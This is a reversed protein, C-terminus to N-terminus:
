YFFGQLDTSTSIEIARIIVWLVLLLTGLLLFRRAIKKITRHRPPPGYQWAM